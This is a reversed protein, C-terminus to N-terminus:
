RFMFYATRHCQPRINRYSWDKKDGNKKRIYDVVDHSTIGSPKDILLIGDM